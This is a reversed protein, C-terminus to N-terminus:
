YFIKILEQIEVNLIASLEQLRQVTPKHIGNVLRSAFAPHRGLKRCLEAQTLGSKKLLKTFEEKM